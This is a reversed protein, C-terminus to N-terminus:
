RDLRRFQRTLTLRWLGAAFVGLVAGFGVLTERTGFPEVQYVVTFLIANAAFLVAPLALTFLRSRPPLWGSSSTAMSVILAFLLVVKNVLLLGVGLLTLLTSRRRRTGAGVATLVCNASVRGMGSPRSSV